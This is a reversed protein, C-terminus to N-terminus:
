QYAGITPTTTRNTKVIDFPVLAATSVKGKAKAPSDTKLRLNLKQIFYNEFKPDQNQISNVVSTNGDFNFGANQAEYKLLSNEIFYTFTQGSIPKFQIATSKDSYVISNKLNLNLAGLETTTGNVYENTAYIGFGPLAGNLDWYNAITSHLINYNGGKFIGICAQGCNNMVLNEANVTANIGLIGFEQNTHIITNKLTASAQDLYLANTGGFIKAYNLNAIAGQELQIGGWNKPLTDYRADNRDGRFIVEKGLDGNAILQANKGIKLNADRHFYVKTGESLTLSKGEAVKLDGYIIKAKNSNWITNQNIIQPNSATSVYFEVDQVVSLLTVHQSAVPSEVQIRDEAIAETANSNPAIEVFVYLSDKKRLPVNTFETGPKGDVNIRYQSTAGGELYIRPISIDKDENNYIKVAYTESRVQNYVTDLVLTDESFSLKQTPVEFNFDDRNCSIAFLALWFSFFLIYKTKM